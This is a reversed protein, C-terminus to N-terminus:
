TCILSNWTTDASQDIRRTLISEAAFSVADKSTPYYVRAAVSRM